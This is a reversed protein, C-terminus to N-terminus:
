IKTAKAYVSLTQTGVGGKFVGANPACDAYDRGHSFKVYIGEDCLSNHTPDFGIWGGDIFCEVWAHSEGEGECLGSVYRAPIGELRMITTMFHAFDQCVGKEHTIFERVDSNPNTHGREYTFHEFIFTNVFSAKEYPSLTSLKLKEDYKRLEKCFPTLRSEQLFVVPALPEIKSTKARDVVGKCSYYFKEHPEKIDGFFVRSGFGDIYENANLLEVELSLLGESAHPSAKVAYFHDFVWNEFTIEFNYEFEIKM